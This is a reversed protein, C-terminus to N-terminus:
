RSQEAALPAGRELPAAAHRALHAKLDFTEDGAQAATVAIHQGILRRAIMHDAPRSVSEVGLLRGLKFCFASCATGAADGRVVVQDYGTTLGAIQLKLNGQDSWFWPVNAYPSPKGTLRAAVCRAHDTANQVSELRVSHGDAFPNPHAACDGIASVDPDATRLFEDVVIGNRVELGAAAAVEVNPQVGIGILVVDAPVRLHETTEVALVAGAEGLIRLLQSNFMFRVGASTHERTFISSIPPSLARAMPRDAVEIVTVAVGLKTATAAIELGIFGAGIVVARKATALAARLDRAEALTRLYHVGRLEAGPVPLPRNRAGVALVCHGYEFVTGDDLTVCHNARDLFNVRRGILVELKKDAYFHDPRMVLRDAESTGLLYAKSLPPRQYPLYPEDGVIVVRGAYRLERLSAGVQFGAMGAGAIIVDSPM